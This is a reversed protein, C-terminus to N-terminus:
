GIVKRDFLDIIVTLYVWGKTTEIYTIDSVWVQNRRKVSFDQNLLNPSIPYNHNSDTTSKSKRKRRAVVGLAKMMIATRPRSVKYGHKELEVAMRPSGYSEHSQEFIDEILEIIKRNELWQDSPASKLWNYYGSKSVDLAKSMMEVPYKLKHQKM